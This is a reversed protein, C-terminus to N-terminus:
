EKRFFYHFALVAQAPSILCNILQGGERNKNEGEFLVLSKSKKLFPLFIRNM